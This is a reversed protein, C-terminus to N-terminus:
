EEEPYILRGSRLRGGTPDHSRIIDFAILQENVTDALVGVVRGGEVEYAKVYRRRLYIRGSDTFQMFGVWIEQPNELIDPILPLYQERGDWRKRDEIIHDAVAQTVSVRCGMNDQYIGEPVAARLAETDGIVTRPDLAVPPKEGSLKKPLFPYHEKRWPGLEKMDGTERVWSRGFAATGVNYDFGKDIGVPVGTKPDIPSPPAQAKGKARAKEMRRESVAFVRCKCGWGNMPTHTEWWPDSAPLTIGDWALHEPRPRRSDGHRYQLYPLIQMVEPDTMQKWRGANYAQRVNTEYIVRSRWNRGGNYDWGHSSVIRDFDKRFDELTTGQTIAKDVAERFDALLDDRYAGAVMFGRAHQEKWLDTWKRTPINLKKQFFAEQEAFPLKFV